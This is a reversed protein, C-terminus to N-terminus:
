VENLVGIYNELRIDILKKPEDNEFMRIFSLVFENMAQNMYIKKNKVLIKTNLFNILAIRGEYSLFNEKRCFVVQHIYYDMIPRFPEMLDDVLNFNNYENKHYVGLMPLLGQSTVARAMQSRVISYGYDMCANPYSDDERSFSQGYISNFYVKAVHGERNTVDGIEIQSLLDEMLVIRKNEVQYWKAMDIQNRIKQSVIYMWFKAKEKETWQSQWIARKAARHYQGLELFIGTPLYKQNCVILDIHNESLRALLRSTIVTDNGELIINEIDSLPISYREGQKLVELNDLSLKLKDGDKVFVTRFGM